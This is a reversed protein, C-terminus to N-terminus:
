NIHLQPVRDAADQIVNTLTTPPYKVTEQHRAYGLYWLVSAVHACTGLTRAGTICTCYYGIIGDEYEDDSEYPDSDNDTSDVKYAIWLQYKTANRFRSYARVRLLGPEPINDTDRLMEVEFVEANDRSLKDQIYSPALGLQYVGTTLNRLQNWNLSPFEPVFNSNLQVWRQASKAKLNEVEVMVQIMNVDAARTLLSRAMEVTGDSMSVPQRYRNIIAAAIRYYDGLNQLHTMQITGDLFKFITKMHGNRGEVIWRSKTVIRSANAEATTFQKQGPKLLSPMYYVVGLREFMEINDRYGRDVIVIDGPQMWEQLEEDLNIEHQLIAADNNKADSFYPGHVDLIYGDPGVLLVPKLLHRGKHQSYTQRLVRFNSSKHMYVYTGDIYLIVKRIAPNSNYLENAFDTVHKKIYEERTIANLGVSSPVLRLMLSRRVTDIALSTAQRSTYGFLIKLLDDSLDQRMKCLFALLDRKSVKRHNNTGQVEVPDCFTYIEVFDTKNVPSIVQFDEDSLSKEDIKKAGSAEHRMADLFVKLESGKIIYPKNVFGINTLYVGPIFGEDDTHFSCARSGEPVYIDAKIFIDARSRSSLTHLDNLSKCVICAHNQAQIVVNLRLCSPDRQLETLETRISQNCSFCVRSTETIDIRDLSAAERRMIAINQVDTKEPGSIKAM